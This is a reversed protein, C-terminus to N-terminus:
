GRRTDHISALAKLAYALPVLRGMTAHVMTTVVTVRRPRAHRRSPRAARGRRILPIAVIADGARIVPLKHGDEIPKASIADTPM